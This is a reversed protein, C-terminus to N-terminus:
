GGERDAGRDWRVRFSREPRRRPEDRVPAADPTKPDPTKPDSDSAPKEGKKDLYHALLGERERQARVDQWDKNNKACEDRLCSTGNSLRESAAEAEERPNPYAFVPPIWLTEVDDPRRPLASQLELERSLLRLLRNLAREALWRQIRTVCRLYIERDLRASSFNSDSSDLLITTIPMGFPRGLSRLRERRFEKYIPAPQEPKIQELHYGPPASSLTGRPLDTTENLVQQTAGDPRDCVLLGGFAAGVKATEMVLDEYDRLNAVDTLGSTLWPVGRAQDEEIPVFGHIIDRAPFWEYRLGMAWPGDPTTEIRYELPRGSRTRRIGLVTQPDTQALADQGLRRPHILRLRLQPGVAVDPDHVIQALFEGCDGCRRVWMRLMEPGRVVRNLDPGTPLGDDDLGGFWQYWARELRENYRKSSSQVQLTFGDEGVVDDALTTLVGDVQPNNIAEWACRARLIPLLTALLTNIPVNQNSPWLHENRRHSDAAAIAAARRVASRFPDDESPGAATKRRGMINAIIGM